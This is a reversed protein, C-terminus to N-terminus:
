SVLFPLIRSRAIGRYIEPRIEELANMDLYPELDIFPCDKTGIVPNM